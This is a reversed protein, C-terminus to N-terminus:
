TRGSTKAGDPSLPGRLKASIAAATAQVVKALSPVKARTIRSVPAAVSIAAIARQKSDLIPAAVCRAGVVAEEDDVAFGRGRTTALEKRFRGPSTITRPTMREFTLAALLREQEVGPLFALLAKGLATCNLPRKMGPTSVLRFAHPSELVEVYLIVDNDLIALNVTESTARQLNILFPWAMSRLGEVWNGRAAMEIFKTGLVYARSGNRLLYGERELHALFRYATSKNLGAKESVEKLRLGKPSDCIFELMRLTKNLTGVPHAKNVRTKIEV